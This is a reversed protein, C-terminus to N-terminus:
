IGGFDLRDRGLWQGTTLAFTTRRLQQVSEECRPIALVDLLGDTYEPAEFRGAQLSAVEFGDPYIGADGWDILWVKGEPDYILNRPAIDLHTLILKDFHFPPVTDPAQQFKQSIELRRNFWTELHEKSDFPGAGMDTFWYGRAVCSKCGVPGPQSQQEQSLPISRLCTIMSTVQSVIDVREAKNLDSWCTEVSRGEIFDM